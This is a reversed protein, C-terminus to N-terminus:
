ALFRHRQQGPPDAELGDLTFALHGGIRGIQFLLQNRCAERVAVDREIWHAFRAIQDRAVPAPIPGGPRGEKQAVHVHDLGIGGVPGAIGERRHDLVSVHEAAAGEVVLPVDRDEDRGEHLELPGAPSRLAVEDQHQGPILFRSHLGGM